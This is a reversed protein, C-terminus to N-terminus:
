KVRTIPPTKRKKKRNTQYKTQNKPITTKTQNNNEPHTEKKLYM